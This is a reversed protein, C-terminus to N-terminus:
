RSGRSSLRLSGRVIDAGCARHLESVSRFRHWHVARSLPLEPGADLGAARTVELAADMRAVVTDDSALFAAVAPDSVALAELETVARLIRRYRAEAGAVDLADAVADVGSARRLLARVEAAGGGQRLAAVALGIGFRDLVALLRRRVPAPVGPDAPQSALVRLAAWCDPDLGDPTTLAAVALLGSMPLVPVGVLEAFEACRARAAVMPGDGGFGTLDAKTLVMLTAGTDTDEPKVVEAIVHMQLEPSTETVDFGALGLAGAVTARGM